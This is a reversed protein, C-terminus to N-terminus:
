YLVNCNFKQMTGQSRCQAATYKYTESNPFTGKFMPRKQKALFCLIRLDHCENLFKVQCDKQFKLYVQKKTENNQVNKKQM